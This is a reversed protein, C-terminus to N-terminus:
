VERWWGGRAFMYERMGGAGLVESAGGMITTGDDPEITAAATGATVVRFGQGPTADAPPRVTVASDLVVVARGVHAAVVTALADDTPWEFPEALDGLERAVDEYFRELETALEDPDDTTFSDHRPLTM